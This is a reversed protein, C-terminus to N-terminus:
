RQKQWDNAFPPCGYARDEFHNPTDSAISPNLALRHEILPFPVAAAAPVTVYRCSLGVWAVKAQALDLGDGYVLEQADAISREM